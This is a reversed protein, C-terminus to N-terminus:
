ASLLGSKYLFGIIFPLLAACGLLIAIENIVEKPKEAGSVRKFLVLVRLIISGGIIGTLISLM